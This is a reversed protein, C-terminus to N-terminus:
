PHYAVTFPIRQVERAPAGNGTSDGGEGSIVLEYEGPQVKGAPVVVHMEMNALEGKVTFRLSTDGKADLLRGVYSPYTVSPTFDFDLAFSETAGITITSGSEGRTAGQLRYSSGFVATGGGPVGGQKLSPITVANQFIVIAALAALAPVAIIPRLWAFWGAKEQPKVPAVEITRPADQLILRSATVFTTLHKVDAACEECDFYHEEFADRLDAPLEGLAYKEVAHLRV